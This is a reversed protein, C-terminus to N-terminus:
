TEKAPTPDRDLAKLSKLLEQQLAENHEVAAMVKEKGNWKESGYTYWAGSNQILGQNMALTVIEEYQNIIGRKYDLTFSGWRDKPGLSSDTVHVLVKHATKEGQGEMDKRGEDRFEVGLADTRSDKRSDEEVYMYYEAHHLAAWAAQPRKGDNKMAKWKDMEVRVHTTLILAFNYRRQVGLIQKLGEQVTSAHDGRLQQNISDRDAANRGLVGTLSDIVVLAIDAGAEATAGVNKEIADFVQDAHNVEVVVFRKPDIGWTRQQKAGMQGEARMETDFKIAYANPRSKHLQGIMDNCIITKGGRPPGYLMMSYGRPLGWGEGFCYNLSPSSTSLVDAHIDKMTDPDKYGDMKSLMARFDKAM